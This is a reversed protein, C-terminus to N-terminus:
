RATTESGCVSHVTRYLIGLNVSDLSVESLRPSKKTNIWASRPSDTDRAVCSTDSQWGEVAAPRSSDAWPSGPPGPFSTLTTPLSGRFVLQSPIFEFDPLHLDIKELSSFTLLSLTLNLAVRADSNSAGSIELEDRRDRLHTGL